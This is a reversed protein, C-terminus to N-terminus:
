GRNNGEGGAWLREWCCKKEITIEVTEPEYSNTLYTIRGTEDESETLTYM